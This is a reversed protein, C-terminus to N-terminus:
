LLEEGCRQRLRRERTPGAWRVARVEPLQRCV